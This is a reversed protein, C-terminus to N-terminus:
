VNPPADLILWDQYYVTQLNLKGTQIYRIVKMVLPSAIDERLKDIDVWQAGSSDHDDGEASIQGGTITVLYLGAVHHEAKELRTIVFDYLGLSQTVEVDLGTEEHFERVVAELLTEHEEMRGGPLDYRYIYPGRKKHVVLLQQNVVCIGYVGIHRYM